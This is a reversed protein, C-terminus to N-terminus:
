LEEVYTKINSDGIFAALQQVGFKEKNVKVFYVNKERKDISGLVQHIDELSLKMTKQIALKKIMKTEEDVADFLDEV